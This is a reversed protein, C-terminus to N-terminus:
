PTCIISDSPCSDAACKCQSIELPTETTCVSGETCDAVISLCQSDTHCSINLPTMKVLEGVTAKMAAAGNADPDNNGNEDLMVVLNFGCDEESYMATGLECLDIDFQLQGATVDVDKVYKFAHPHGGNAAEDPSMVIQHYLWIALNVKQGPSFHSPDFSVVGRVVSGANKPSCKSAPPDACTLTVPTSTEPTAADGVDGPSASSCASPASLLFAAFLGARLAPRRLSLKM